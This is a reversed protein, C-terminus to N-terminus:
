IPLIYIDCDIDWAPDFALLHVTHSPAQRIHLSLNNWLKPAIVACATDGRLKHQTKWVLLLTQDASRLSYSPVSLACGKLAKFVFLLFIFCVWVCSELSFAKNLVSTKLEIFCVFCFLCFLLHAPEFFGAFQALVLFVVPHVKHLRRTDCWIIMYYLRSIMLYICEFCLFLLVWCSVLPSPHM